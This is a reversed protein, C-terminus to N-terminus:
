RCSTSGSSNTYCRNNANALGLGALPDYCFGLCVDAVPLNTHKILPLSVIERFVNVVGPAPATGLESTFACIRQSADVLYWGEAKWSRLPKPVLPQVNAPRPPCSLARVDPMLTISTVGDGVGEEFRYRFLRRSSRWVFFRSDRHVAVGTEHFWLGSKQVYLIRIEPTVADVILPLRYPIAATGFWVALVVMGAGFAPWTRDCIPRNGLMWRQPLLRLMSYSTAITTLAVALIKWKAFTLFAQNGPWQSGVMNLAIWSNAWQYSYLESWAFCPLAM